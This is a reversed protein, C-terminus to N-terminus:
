KKIVMKFSLLVTCKLFFITYKAIKNQVNKHSGTNELVTYQLSHQKKLHPDGDKKCIRIKKM